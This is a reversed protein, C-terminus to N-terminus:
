LPLFILSSVYGSSFSVLSIAYKHTREMSTSSHVCYPGTDTYETLDLWLDQLLIIIYNCRSNFWFNCFRRLLVMDAADISISDIATFKPYKKQLVDYYMIRAPTDLLVDRDDPGGAAGAMARVYGGGPSRPSHPGPPSANVDLSINPRNGISMPSIQPSASTSVTQKSFASLELLSCLTQRHIIGQLKGERNVVPFGNHKTETLIKYVEGVKEHINLVKVPSSMIESVPSYNLLGLNRLSNVIFPLENIQIFLDYLGVDIANGSYRAAIFTVMLPLLYTMNGATELMIITMSITIRTVGGTIAAAGVLAYTGADAVNGPFLGNLVHGWLRGYAAGVLLTPVFVGRPVSLGATGASVFFYPIMFLILPGAGFTAYNSGDYERFHFLQRIATEAPALFLSALQNYEGDKCQFQVLDELLDKEESTWTAQDQASPLNHCEQWMLPLFFTLGCMATTFALVRAYQLKKYSPDDHKLHIKKMIANFGAGILGGTFGMLIFVFLEWTRYNTEGENIDKFQGFVFLNKIETTGFGSDAFLINVTLMSIMACIFAKITVTASWHSASEELAFLVGGIPSRFASAIGAAIGYTLSDAIMKDNQFDTHVSWSTDLGFTKKRGQSLVAAIAAGVHVMPAKKGIPLGSAVSFCVGFAKAIVARPKLFGELNVGNLYVKVESIGSGASNPEIYGMVVAIGVFFLSFFLYSFFAAAWKGKGILDHVVNFKWDLLAHTLVFVVSGICGITIGIVLVLVWNRAVFAQEDSM